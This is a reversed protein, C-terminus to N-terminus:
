QFLSNILAEDDINEMEVQVVSLMTEYRAVLLKANKAQATAINKVLIDQLRTLVTDRSEAPIKAIRAKM